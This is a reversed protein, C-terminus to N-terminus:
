WEGKKPVTIFLSKGTLSKRVGAGNVKDFLELDLAYEKSQETHGASPYTASKGKFILREDNPFELTYGQELEAPLVSTYTYTHARFPM